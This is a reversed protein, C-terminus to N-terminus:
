EERVAAIAPTKFIHITHKDSCCALFAGRDWEFSLHKINAAESGRRVESLKEGTKTNFL